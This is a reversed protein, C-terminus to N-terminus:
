FASPGLPGHSLYKHEGSDPQISIKGRTVQSQHRKEAPRQTPIRKDGCYFRGACLMSSIFQGQTSM